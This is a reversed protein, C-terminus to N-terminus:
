EGRMLAALTRPRLAFTLWGLAVGFWLTIVRILLTAAAADATSMGLAVLLGALSAETVGIGGPAFTLAGAIAAIAYVGIVTTAPLADFGISQLCLAFAFGELSWAAASFGMSVVLPVPGLTTRLTESVSSASVHHEKMWRQKTVYGLALRHFRPSVLTALAVVLAAAVAALVPVTDAFVGAAGVSLAMVGVLDALRESFVLTAGRAVPLGTLDRALFAKLVEGVKGPTVAMTMGSFQVYFADRMGIRGGAIRILYRWRVARIAYGALTLAIMAAITAGPMRGLSASVARADGLAALGAYVLASLLASVILGRFVRSSNM